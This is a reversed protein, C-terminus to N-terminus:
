LRNYGLQDRLKRLFDGHLPSQLLAAKLLQRKEENKGATIHRSHNLWSSSKTSLDELKALSVFDDMKKKPVGLFTFIRRFASDFDEKFDEFHVNLANHDMTSTTYQQGQAELEDHMFTAMASCAADMDGPENRVVKLYGDHVATGNGAALRLVEYQVASVVQFSGNAHRHLVYLQICCHAHSRRNLLTAVESADCMSMWKHFLALPVPSSASYSTVM